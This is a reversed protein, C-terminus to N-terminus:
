VIGDIVIIEQPPATFVQGDYTFEPGISPQNSVDVLQNGEEQVALTWDTDDDFMAVNQVVGKKILAIRKM